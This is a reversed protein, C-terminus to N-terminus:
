VILPIVALNFMGPKLDHSQLSGLVEFDVSFYLELGSNDVNNEKIWILSSYFTPDISEIDKMTVPKGLMRKYFPLTFGSYIFKGHFLAMAIFRGIFRFYLLHDPNVSSAPNIQLSFLSHIYILRLPIETYVIFLLGTIASEM